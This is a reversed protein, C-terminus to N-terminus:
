KQRVNKEWDRVTYIARLRGRERQRRSGRQESKKRILIIYSFHICKITM